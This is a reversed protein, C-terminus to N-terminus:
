PRPAGGNGTAEQGNSYAVPVPAPATAQALAAAIAAVDDPHLRPTAGQGSPTADKTEGGDHTNNSVDAEPGPRTFVRSLVGSLGGRRAPPEDATPAPTPQEDAAPPSEIVQGEIVTGYPLDVGITRMLEPLNALASRQIHQQVAPSRYAALLYMAAQLRGNLQMNAVKESVHLDAARAKMHSTHRADEYTNERVAQEMLRLHRPETAMVVAAGLAMFAPAIPLGWTLYVSLWPAVALGAQMQSDGVIGLCSLVFGLGATVAAAIKQSDGTIRRNFFALYLGIVVVEIVVIGIIGAAQGLGSDAHYHATASIGHYASYLAFAFVVLHLIWAGIGGIVGGARGTPADNAFFDQLGSNLENENM